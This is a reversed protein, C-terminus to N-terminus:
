RRAFCVLSAFGREVPELMNANGIPTIHANYVSVGVIDGAQCNLREFTTDGNTIQTAAPREESASVELPAGLYCAPKHTALNFFLPVLEQTIHTLKQAAELHGRKTLVESPHDPAYVGTKADHFDHHWKHPTIPKGAEMTESRAFLLAAGCQDFKGDQMIKRFGTAIFPGFIDLPAPLSTPDFNQPAEIVHAKEEKYFGTNSRLSFENLAKAPAQGAIFAAEGTPLKDPRHPEFYTVARRM